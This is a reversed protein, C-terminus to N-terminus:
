VERNTPLTLHTYSVAISDGTEADCQAEAVARAMDQAATASQGVMGSVLTIASAAENVQLAQRESREALEDSAAAIEGAGAHLASTGRAVQELMNEMVMTIAVNMDFVTARVLGALARGDRHAWPLLRRWGRVAMHQMMEGLVQAYAGFYLGPDLGIRAHVLGVYEARAVFTADLGTSLMAQWHELQKAQAREMTAASAFHRAADPNDALDAYLRKLATPAARGLTPALSRLNRRAREDLGFRSLQRTFRQTM